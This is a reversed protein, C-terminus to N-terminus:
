TVIEVGRVRRELVSVSLAILGLVVILSV